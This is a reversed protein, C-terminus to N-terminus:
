YLSYPDDREIGLLAGLACWAFLIPALFIIALTRFPLLIITWVRNLASSVRVSRM